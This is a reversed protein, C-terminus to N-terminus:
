AKLSITNSDQWGRRASVRVQPVGARGLPSPSIWSSATVVWLGFELEHTPPLINITFTMTPPPLCLMWAGASRPGPSNFAQTISSMCSSHHNLQWFAFPRLSSGIRSGRTVHLRFANLVALQSTSPLRLFFSSLHLCAFPCVSFGIDPVAHTTRGLSNM